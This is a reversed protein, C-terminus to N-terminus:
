PYIQFYPIIEYYYLAFGVAASVVGCLSILLIGGGWVAWPPLNSFRSKPKYAPQIGPFPKPFYDDPSPNMVESAIPQTNLKNMAELAMQNHPNIDLVSQYCYQRQEKDDAIEAYMLWAEESVPNIQLAQKILERAEDRNDQLINQYAEELYYEDQQM